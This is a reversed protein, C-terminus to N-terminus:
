SSMTVAKATDILYQRICQGAIFKEGRRCLLMLAVLPVSLVSVSLGAALSGATVAAVLVGLLGILVAIYGAMLGHALISLAVARGHPLQTRLRWLLGIWIGIFVVTSLTTITSAGPREIEWAWVTMTVMGGALLWAVPLLIRSFGPAHFWPGTWRGMLLKTVDCRTGCEPCTVVDGALGRLNYKCQPCALDQKLQRVQDAGRSTM